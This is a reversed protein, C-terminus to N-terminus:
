VFAIGLTIRSIAAIRCCAEPELVRVSVRRRAHILLTCIIASVLRSLTMAWSLNTVYSVWQNAALHWCTETKRNRDAEHSRMSSTFPSLFLSATNQLSSPFRFALLKPLLVRTLRAVLISGGQRFECQSSNHNLSLSQM